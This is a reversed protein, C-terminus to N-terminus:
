YIKEFTKPSLPSISINAPIRRVIRSIVRAFVIGILLFLIMDYFCIFGFMHKAIDCIGNTIYPVIFNIVASAIITIVLLPLEVGNTKSGAAERKKVIERVCIIFASLLIIATVWLNNIGCRVRLSEWISFRYSQEAPKQPDQRNTLYFPRIYKAYGASYKMAEFFRAPHKVYFLVIRTKSIKDYFGAKFASSKIDVPFGPQYENAGKLVAYSPDLGLEQLDQEPTKSNVLIGDFVADFNTDHELWAPTLFSSYFLLFAITIVSYFLVCFRRVTKNDRLFALPLLAFLLGVPVYASKSMAMVTVANYYAWLIRKNRCEQLRLFLGIVLFTSVLQLAEGYLSNLYLTYGQDCFVFIAVVAAYAFWKPGFRRLIFRLILYFSYVYVLTYIFFLWFLNYTHHPKGVAFNYLLNLVKSVKIAITQSTVYDFRSYDTQLFYAIKQVLSGDYTVMQYATIYRKSLQPDNEAISIRNPQLIRIFDGNNAIGVADPVYLSLLIVLACLMSVAFPVLKFFKEKTM